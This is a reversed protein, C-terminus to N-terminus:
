AVKYLKAANDWLIQRREADPVGDFSRAIFDRTNPWTSTTSPFKTSWLINGTGIFRRTKMGARDYWGTLYCQRQFLESPKLKYGEKPLQDNLAQHDTFELLYAIWGLTSEAFVVKLKPYRMLIRSILLNVVVSVTSAPGSIAKFAAAVTPSFSDSPAVQIEDSAGSHFCIPVNLKQCTAWIPDYDPENIHPVDRLEMPVAPYIVGKHGKAVARKIEAVTADVSSIPV